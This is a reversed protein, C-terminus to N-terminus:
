ENATAPGGRSGNLRARGRSRRGRGTWGRREGRYGNDIHLDNPFAPLIDKVRCCQRDFRSRLNHPRVIRIHGMRNRTIGPDEVRRAIQGLILSELYDETLWSPVRVVAVNVCIHRSDDDHRRLLYVFFRVTHPLGRTPSGILFM